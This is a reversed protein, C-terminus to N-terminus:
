QQRNLFGSDAASAAQTSKKEPGVAHVGSASAARRRDFIERLRHMQESRHFAMLEASVVRPTRALWASVYGAQFWLGGLVWPRQRM